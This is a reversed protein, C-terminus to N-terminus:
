FKFTSGITIRFDDVEASKNNLSEAQEYGIKFYIRSDIHRLEDPLAYAVEIEPRWIYNVNHSTEYEDIGNGFYPTLYWSGGM